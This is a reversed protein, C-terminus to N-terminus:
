EWHPQAPAGLAQTWTTGNRAFEVKEPDISVIQVEGIRDGPELVRDVGEVMCYHGGQPSYGVSEVVGFQAERSESERLYELISRVQEKLDQEWKMTADLRAHRGNELQRLEVEAEARVQRVFTLLESAQERLLPWLPAELREEVIQVLKEEFANSTLLNAMQTLFYEQEMAQRLCAVEPGGVPFGYSSADFYAQPYPQGQHMKMFEVWRVRLAFPLRAAARRAITQLREHRLRSFRL